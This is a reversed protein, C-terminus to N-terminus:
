LPLVRINPNLKQKLIGEIAFLTGTSASACGSCAGLYRIYLDTHEGNEKIDLIEMDGGDMVLMARIYEDIVKEIALKKEEPTMEKFDKSIDLSSKASEQEMEQRTSKLIDILYEDQSHDPTPAICKSCFAGAGTYGAIEEISVLDFSKIADVIEDRTAQSCSCIVKSPEKTKGQFKKVGLELANVVFLTEYRKQLPLAPNSPHDRLFYEVSKYNLKSVEDITKNRCLLASIDASAILAPSGFAEYRCAVVRDEGDLVWYFKIYAGREFSGYEFEFLRGNLRLAEDEDIKGYNKPKVSLMEVKFPYSEWCVGQMLIDSKAM